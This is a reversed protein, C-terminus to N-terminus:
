KMKCEGAYVGGQMTSIRRLTVIHWQGKAGKKVGLEYWNQKVVNNSAFEIRGRISAFDAKRVAAAFAADPKGGSAKLASAILLETDYANAAYYTPLRHYAAEYAAVFRKNAPYPLDANWNAAMHMNSAASGVAALLRSDLSPAAVMLPIKDKLGSEAWQKLFNIGLGGPEFEYLAGPALSRIKAIEASFDTQDLSTYIEAELPGFGHKVAAIVQRGLVYNPAMAVLKKVGSAKALVGASRHLTEDWGTVFYHPNCLKGSYQDPSTNQGLWYAGSHLIDGLMAVAVNSFITGTFLRVHDDKLFRDAILRGQIPKLGDDQVMVDVPVGGLKGGGEKVALMFGDRADQGLYGAPGSLTTIFGIKVPPQAQAPMTFAALCLLGALLGTRKKM